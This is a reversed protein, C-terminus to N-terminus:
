SSIRTGSQSPGLTSRVHDKLPVYRGMWILDLHHAMVTVTYWAVMHLRPCRTQCEVELFKYDIPTVNNRKRLANSRYKFGVWRINRTKGYQGDEM